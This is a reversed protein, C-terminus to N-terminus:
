VSQGLSAFLTIMKKAVVILPAVASEGKVSLETLLVGLTPRQREKSEKNSERYFLCRQLVSM